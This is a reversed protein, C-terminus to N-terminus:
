RSDDYPRGAAVPWGCTRCYPPYGAPADPWAWRALPADVQVQYRVLLSHSLTYIGGRWGGGGLAVLLADNLPSLRKPPKSRRACWLLFLEALM